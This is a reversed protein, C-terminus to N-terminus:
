LRRHHLFPLLDRDWLLHIAAVALCRGQPIHLIVSLPIVAQILMIHICPTVHFRKEKCM